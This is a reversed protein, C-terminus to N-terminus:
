LMGKVPFEANKIKEWNKRFTEKLLEEAEKEKGERLLLRAKETVTLQTSILEEELALVGFLPVDLGTKEARAFIGDCFSGDLLEDPLKEVAMPVPIFVTHRPPGPAFWATSLFRPFEKDLTITTASNTNKACPARGTDCFTRCRAGAFMDQLRVKRHCQWGEDMVIRRVSQARTISNLRNELTNDSYPIMEPYEWTNARIGIGHTVKHVAIHKANHEAVYANDPDTIHWISGKKGHFYAGSELLEKLKAIAEEGTACEELLIRAMLPTSFGSLNYEATEDGSNMSVALGMENMGCNAYFVARDAIATFAYKGPVARHLLVINKSNSDRNKHHFNQHTETLEKVVNWSTCEHEPREVNEGFCHILYNYYFKKSWSGPPLGYTKELEEYEVLHHPAFKKLNALYKEYLSESYEEPTEKPLHYGPDEPKIRFYKLAYEGANFDKERGNELMEDYSRM